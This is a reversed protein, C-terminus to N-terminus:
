GDQSRHDSSWSISTPIFLTTSQIHNTGFESYYNRIWEVTITIRDNEEASILFNRGAWTVNAWKFDSHKNACSKAISAALHIAMSGSCVAINM